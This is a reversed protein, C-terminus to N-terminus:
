EAHSNRTSAFGRSKIKAKSKPRGHNPHFGFEKEARGRAAGAEEVTNFYGLHKLKGDVRIRALYKTRGNFFYPSVGIRGTSNNKPLSANRCNEANTVARLNNIRNDDPDGNIHDIMGPPEEGYFHLWALRHAMFLTDNIAIRRHGKTGVRGAPRGPYRGNWNKHQNSSKFYRRDRPKWVLIGTDPNYNLYERVIEPSIM